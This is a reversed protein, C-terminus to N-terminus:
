GVGEFGNNLPEGTVQGEFVNTVVQPVFGRQLEELMLFLENYLAKTNEAESGPILLTIERPETEGTEPNRWARTLTVETLECVGTGGPVEYFFYNDEGLTPVAGPPTGPPAKPVVFPLPECEPDCPDPIDLILPIVKRGEEDYEPEGAVMVPPKADNNINVETRLKFVPTNDPPPPVDPPAELPPPPEIPVINFYEGPSEECGLIEVYSSGPVTQNLVTDTAFYEGAIHEYTTIGDCPLFYNGGACPEEVTNQAPYFTPIVDNGYFGYYQELEYDEEDQTLISCDAPDYLLVRRTWVRLECVAYQEGTAFNQAALKHKEYEELKVRVSPLDDYTPLLPEFPDGIIAEIDAAAILTPPFQGPFADGFTTASGPILNGGPNLWFNKQANLQFTVPPM